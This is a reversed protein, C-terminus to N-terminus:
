RVIKESKKLQNRTFNLDKTIEFGIGSLLDKRNLNKSLEVTCEFIIHWVTQDWIKEQDAPSLGKVFDFLHTITIPRGESGVVREGKADRIGKDLFDKFKGGEGSLLRALLYPDNEPILKDIGKIGKLYETAKKFAVYPDIFKASLNDLWNLNFDGAYETKKFVQAMVGEPKVPEMQVFAKTLSGFPANEYDLRRIADSFETVTDRYDKPVKSEYLKQLEPYRRAAEEPNLIHARLFEAFGEGMRYKHKAAKDAKSPPESGHVALEGLEKALPTDPHNIAEKLVGFQDDLKHGLEHAAVDMDGANRQRVATDFPSYSGAARRRGPNMFTFKTKTKKALRKLSESVPEVKGGDPKAAFPIRDSKGKKKKAGVEEYQKKGSFPVEDEFLNGQRDDVDPENKIRDVEAQAEKVNKRLPDLISKAEDREVPFMEEQTADFMSSQKSQTGAIGDEAKKLKRQAADLKAQAEKLREEKPRSETTKPQGPEGSGEESERNGKVPAPSGEEMGKGQGGENGERVTRTNEHNIKEALENTLELGTLERFKDKAEKMIPTDRTSLTNENNPHAHIYDVIDQPTIEYDYHDSMEKAIKDIPQGGNEKSRIYSKAISQGNTKRDGFRKWSDDTIHGIGFEAIMREKTGGASETPDQRLFVEAVESPNETNELTWREAEHPTTFEFDPEKADSRDGKTFDYKDAYKKMVRRRTSASAPKGEDNEIHLHAGEKRINWNDIKVSEGEKLPEIKGKQNIKGITNDPNQINADSNNNDSANTLTAEDKHQPPHIDSPSVIDGPKPESRSFLLEKSDVYKKRVLYATKIGYFKDDEAKQLKLVAVKDKGNRKVLLISGKDDKRIENFNKVVDNVFDEPSSYGNETIQDEHESKIHQLGYGDNGQSLRIPAEDVNAKDAVEKDIKGLDINGDEEAIFPTGNNDLKDSVVFKAKNPEQPKAGEAGASAEAESSQTESPKVEKPHVVEQPKETEKVPEKGPTRLEYVGKAIEPNDKANPIIPEWDGGGLKKEYAGDKELYEYEQGTAAERVEDNKAEIAAQTDKMQRNLSEIQEDIEKASLERLAPDETQSLQKKQNNLNEIEIEIFPIQGKLDDRESIKGIVNTTQEPTMQPITKKIAAYADIAKHMEPVNYFDLKRRYDMCDIQAYLSALDEPGTAEAARNHIYNNTWGGFGGIASQIM